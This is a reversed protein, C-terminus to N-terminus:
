VCLLRCSEEPLTILGDCPGRGACCMVSVISVCGHGRARNSSTVGSLSLDCVWGKSWAAVPMPM